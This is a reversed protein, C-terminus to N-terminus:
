EKPFLRPSLSIKAKKLVDDFEEQPSGTTIWYVKEKGDRLIHIYGCEFCILLDITKGDKVVRIGHRPQFCGGSTLAGMERKKNLMDAHQRIGLHLANLLTKRAESDKVTTKGLISWDHFYKNRPYLGLYPVCEHMMKWVYADVRKEFAPVPDLSYLEWQDAKALISSVDGLM